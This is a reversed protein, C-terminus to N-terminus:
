FIAIWIKIVFVITLKVNQATDYLTQGNQRKHTASSDDSPDFPYINCVNEYLLYSLIYILHGFNWDLSIYKIRIGYKFFHISWNVM